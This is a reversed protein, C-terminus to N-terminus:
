FGGGPRGAETSSSFGALTSLRPHESSFRGYDQKKSGTREVLKNAIMKKITRAITSRGISLLLVIGEYTMDPTRALVLLIQDELTGGDPNLTDTDGDKSTDAKKRLTDNFEVILTENEM